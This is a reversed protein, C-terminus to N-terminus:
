FMGISFHPVFRSEGISKDPNLNIGLDLAAPGIPTLIRLGMGSSYRLTWPEFDSQNLWLNGADFFIALEFQSRGIPIRIEAKALTFLEGGESMYDGSWQQNHLTRRIDEPVLADDMFGRMSAAGGVFYRKPVIALHDEGDNELHFIKGASISRTNGASSPM